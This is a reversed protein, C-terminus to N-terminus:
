PAPFVSQIISTLIQPMLELVKAQPELAVVMTREEFVLSILTHDEVIIPTHSQPSTISHRSNSGSPLLNKQATQTSRALDTANHQGLTTMSRTLGSSYDLGQQTTSILSIPAQPLLSVQLIPKEPNNMVWKVDTHWVLFRKQINVYALGGNTNCLLFTLHSKDDRSSKESPKQISKPPPLALIQLINTVFNQSNQQVNQSNQNLLNAPLLFDDIVKTITKPLLDWIVIAGNRHAVFLHDGDPSLDLSIIPGRNFSDQRHEKATGLCGYRYQFHDFVWVFGLSTGICIFRHNTCISIPVGTFQKKESMQYIL